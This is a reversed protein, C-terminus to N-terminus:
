FKNSTQYIQPKQSLSPWVEGYNSDSKCIIGSLVPGSFLQKSSSPALTKFSDRILVSFSSSAKSKQSCETLAFAM